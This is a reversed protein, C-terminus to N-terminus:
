TRWLRIVIGVIVGAMACGGCLLAWTLLNAPTTVWSEADKAIRDSLEDTWYHPM